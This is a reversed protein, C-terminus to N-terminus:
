GLILEDLPRPADRDSYDYFGRGSKRGLWGSGVMRRLLAPPAFRPEALQEHLVGAIAVTTDLGILDLLVFPGMPHGCGLKMAQDISAISGVRQELVRVADLLYPILLRNVLFGPRDAAQVATKGVRALFGLAEGYVAPDTLLSRSTEVLPMLPVPNFFHLGLFREPRATSLMMDAISLSSTNSALIASAKLHPALAHWLSRKAALDEVIAEIVLDCAALAAPDTTFALRALVAQREDAGLPHRAALKDLSRMISARGRECLESTTELVTVSFGARAAVEAIGSGMLGCGCVGIQEISM